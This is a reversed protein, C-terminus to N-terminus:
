PDMDETKDMSSRGCWLGRILGELFFNILEVLHSDPSIAQLSELYLLVAQRSISTPAIRCGGLIPGNFQLANNLCWNEFIHIVRPTDEEDTGSSLQGDTDDVLVEKDTDQDPDSSERNLDQPEKKISEM